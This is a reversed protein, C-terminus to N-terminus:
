EKKAPRRRKALGVSVLHELADREDDSAPTVDGAGFTLTVAEGNSRIFQRTVPTELAYASEM